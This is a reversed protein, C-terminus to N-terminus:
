LNAPGKPKKTWKNRFLIKPSLHCDLPSEQSGVSLTFANFSFCLVSKLWQGPRIKEEGKVPTRVTPPTAATICSESTLLKHAQTNRNYFFTWNACTAIVATRVTMVVTAIIVTDGTPATSNQRSQKKTVKTQGAHSRHSCGNLFYTSQLYM